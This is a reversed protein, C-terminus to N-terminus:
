MTIRDVVDRNQSPVGGWAPRELVVRMSGSWRSHNSCSVSESADSCLRFERGGGQGVSQHRRVVQPRATLMLHGDDVM